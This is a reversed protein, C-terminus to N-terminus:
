RTSRVSCNCLPQSSTPTTADCPNSTMPCDMTAGREPNGAQATYQVHYYRHTLTHSHNAGLAREQDRALQRCM